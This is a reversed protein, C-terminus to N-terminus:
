GTGEAAAGAPTVSIVGTFHHTALGDRLLFVDYVRAVGLDTQMTAEFFISDPTETFKDTSLLRLTGLHRLYSAFHTRLAARGRVTVDFGVLVADEAYQRLVGDLDGAELYAIQRDYFARGATM